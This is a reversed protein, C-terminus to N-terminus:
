GKKEAEHAAQEGAAHGPWAGTARHHLRACLGDLMHEPVYKGLEIKCTEFDGPRNWGIKAGGPGTSWYRMLRETAEPHAIEGGAM